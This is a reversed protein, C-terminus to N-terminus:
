SSCGCGCGCQDAKAVKAASAKVGGLQIVNGTGSGCQGGGCGGGCDQKREQRTLKNIQVQEVM